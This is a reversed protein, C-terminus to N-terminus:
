FCFVHLYISSIYKGRQLSISIYVSQSTNHFFCVERQPYSSFAECLRLILVPNPSASFISFHSISIFFPNPLPFLKCLSLASFFAVTLPLDGTTCFPEVTFHLAMLPLLCSSLSALCVSAPNYIAKHTMSLLGTRHHFHQLKWTTTCKPCIVTYTSHLFYQLMILRSGSLDTLLFFTILVHVLTSAFSTFPYIGSVNFM